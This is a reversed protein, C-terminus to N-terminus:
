PPAVSGEGRSHSNGRKVAQAHFPVASMCQVLMDYNLIYRPARRQQSLQHPHNLCSQRMRAALSLQHSCKAHSPRQHQAQRQCRAAAFRRQALIRGPCKRIHPWVVYDRGFDSSLVAEDDVEYIKRIKDDHDLRMIENVLSSGPAEIDPLYEFLFM